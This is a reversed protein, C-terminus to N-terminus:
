TRKGLASWGAPVLAAALAIKLLDALLFPAVGKAWAVDIGAGSAGSSLMAFWAFWAFGLAFVVVDAAVM